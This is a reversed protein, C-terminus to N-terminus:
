GSASSPLHDATYLPSKQDNEVLYAIYGDIEPGGMNIAFEEGFICVVAYLENKDTYLLTFEHMVQFVRGRDFQVDDEHYITRQSFPWEGPRDGIRAYRRIPDLQTNDILEAEWDEIEILRHALIEIAVKALFRSMLKQDVNGRTPLVVGNVKGSLLLGEVDSQEPEHMAHLHIKSGNVWVNVPKPFRKLVGLMPPVFGRKNPVWQTSRLHSMWGSALLPQEVKRAFYNNCQDCVVGPRLVHDTNGLSEPIIHEKSRSSASGRKCFICRM